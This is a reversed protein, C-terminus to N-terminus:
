SKPQLQEILHDFGKRQIVSSFESRQTNLLSVGEVVIDIIAYKGSKQRMRYDVKVAAGGTPRKINMSVMYQNKKLVKSRTVEFETGEAYETFNSTYHKVLFAKYNALYSKQQTADMNRWHKGVVFRGIWDTNVAAKFLDELSQLKASDSTGSALVEVAQNATDLAFKRAGEENAQATFAFAIMLFLSLVVQKM